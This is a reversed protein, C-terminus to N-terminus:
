QRGDLISRVEVQHILPAVFQAGLAPLLAVSVVIAVRVALGWRFGSAPPWPEAPAIAQSLRWTHHADLLAAIVGTLFLVGGAALVAYKLLLM